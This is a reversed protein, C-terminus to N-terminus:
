GAEKYLDLIDVDTYTKVLKRIKEGVETVMKKRTELDMEEKKQLSWMRSMLATSFIKIAGRFGDDTFEIPGRREFEIDWFLRELDDLVENIKEDATM